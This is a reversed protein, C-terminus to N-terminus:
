RAELEETIAAILAEEYKIGCTVSLSGLISSEPMVARAALYGRLREKAEELERRLREDSYHRIKFKM